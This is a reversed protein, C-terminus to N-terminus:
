FRGSDDSTFDSVYYGDGDTAGGGPAAAATALPLHQGAQQERPAGPAGQQGGGAVGAAEPEGASAERSVSSSLTGDRGGGGGGAARQQRARYAALIDSSTRSPPKHAADVGPQLWLSGSAGLSAPQVAQQQPPLAPPPPQVASAPLPQRMWPAEWPASAPAQQAAGRGRQDVALQAAPQRSGQVSGAPQVPRVAPGAGAPEPAGHQPAPPADAPSGDDSDEGGAQQGARAHAALVHQLGQAVATRSALARQRLQAAERRLGAEERKAAEVRAEAGEQWREADRSAAQLAGALPGEAGAAALAAQQHLDAVERAASALALRLEEGHRLVRDHAKASQVLAACPLTPAGSCTVLRACSAM